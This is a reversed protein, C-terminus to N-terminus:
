KALTTEASSSDFLGAWPLNPAALLATVAEPMMPKAFLFGQGKECNLSQLYAFQEVTEIGEAVVNIGLGHALMMVAPIIHVAEKGENCGSVFSRDIKLTNIPFRHLYSLSSYGTGFDDMSIQIGLARLNQLNTSALEANQMITSETIELKLFRADLDAAELSQQVQEALNPRSFHQTSLNVSINSLGLNPFQHLWTQMQRCATRLGWQDMAVILGTEEALPVFEAPSILGRSPHQWRILAEFSLIQGTKLSVIPQYVLSFERRELARRLSAELRLRTLVRTHMIPDFVVFCSRGLTKAQHLATDADRLLDEPRIKGTKDLAIGISVTVILELNNLKFPISLSDQVEQVIETVDAASGIDELLIAFEDGGLRAVVADPYLRNKLRAALEILLQDGILHGLSENIVKFRDLDLFLVAVLPKDTRLPQQAIARKIHTLFLSRNPLGTLDDHFAHHHLLDEARKREALEVQATEYLDAQHIAIGAQTALQKLLEIEWEQWIRPASCHQAVLLGWLDQGRLIPVVLNARVQFQALLEVHCPSLESAHIDEVAQVRGSQYAAAWQEGFHPDTIVRGMLSLSRDGVAEVVVIGSWDPKFQYLMVRDVQLLQYIETVTTQLIAELNLSERIRMATTALLRAHRAQDQLQQEVLKQSSINYWTGVIEPALQQHHTLRREDRIWQYSGDACLFRYELTQIPLSLLTPLAARVQARDDAHIHEFWFGPDDIFAQAAYGLKATANDSVQTIVLDTAMHATYAVIPSFLQLWQAQSQTAALAQYRKEQVEIQNQLAATHRVENSVDRIITITGPEDMEALLSSICVNQIMQGSQSGQKSTMPVLYSRLSAGLTVTEGNLARDYLRDLHRQILDPYIELLNCGLVSSSRLGTHKEMWRNWSCINLAVDTTFIGLSSLDGVWELCVESPLTAETLTMM